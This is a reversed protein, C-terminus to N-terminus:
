PNPVRWVHLAFADFGPYDMTFDLDKARSYNLRAMVAASAGNDPGTYTLLDRRGCRTQVDTLSARAAETAYGKGWHTPLMRWGIEDHPGLSKHKAVHMVGNTGVFTGDTLTLKWRTFGYKEYNSLYNAFTRESEERRLPRGFDRTAQADAYLAVFDERDTEAWPSLTLRETKLIM